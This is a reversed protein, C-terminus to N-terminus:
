AWGIWRTSPLGPRRLSTNVKKGGETPRSICVINGLSLLCIAPLIHAEILPLSPCSAVYEYAAISISVVRLNTTVALAGPSLSTSTGLVGM